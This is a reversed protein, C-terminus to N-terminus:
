AGPQRAQFDDMASNTRARQLGRRSGMRIDGGMERANAVGRGPPVPLVMSYGSKAAVASNRKKGYKLGLHGAGRLLSQCPTLKRGRVTESPLGVTRLINFGRDDFPLFCDLYFQECAGLILRKFKTPLGATDIAELVELDFADRGYKLLAARLHSQRGGSACRLHKLVRNRIDTSSGIYIRGSGRHTIRYVGSNM